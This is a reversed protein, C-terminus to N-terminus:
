QLKLANFPLDLTGPRGRLQLEHSSPWLEGVAAAEMKHTFNFDGISHIAHRGQTISAPTNV